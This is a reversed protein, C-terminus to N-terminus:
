QYFAQHIRLLGPCNYDFFSGDNRVANKASGSDLHKLRKGSVPELGAHRINTLPVATIFYSYIENKLVAASKMM